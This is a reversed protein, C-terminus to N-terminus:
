RKIYMLVFLGINDHLTGKRQVVAKEQLLQKQAGWSSGILYSTTLLFKCNWLNLLKHVVKIKPKIISCFKVYVYIYIYIYSIETLRSTRNISLEDICTPRPRFM